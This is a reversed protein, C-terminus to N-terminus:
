TSLNPRVALSNVLGRRLRNESSSYQSPASADQFSIEKESNPLQLTDKDLTTSAFDLGPLSSM